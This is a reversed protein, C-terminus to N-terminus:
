NKLYMALLLYQKLIMLILKLIKLAEQLAGSFDKNKYLTNMLMKNIKYNDIYNM